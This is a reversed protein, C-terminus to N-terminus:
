QNFKKSIKEKVKEKAKEKEKEQESVHKMISEIKESQIQLLKDQLKVKKLLNQHNESNKGEIGEIMSQLARLKGEWGAEQDQKEFETCEQFFQLKNNNRRFFMMNEVEQIMDMLEKMDASLSDSQVRDYTDGIISILLNLMIIPNIMLAFTLCIYEVIDLNNVEFNGLVLNYSIMLYESFSKVTCDSETGECRNLVIFLFCFSLTSYILLVLFGQIDKCVQFLLNILYRTLKFLRFYSIGRLFSLFIVLSFVSYSADQWEGTWTIIIYTYLMIGRSWDIYNWVYTFYFSGSVSMQFLEYLLLLTNCFFLGFGAWLKASYYESMESLFATYISLILLYVYFCIGQVMMPYKANEWKYAVMAQILPSRMVNLNTCNALSELFEISGKSGMTYNIRAYSEKFLIGKGHTSIDEPIFFDEPRIRPHCSITVIPLEIDPTCFKPLSRRMAPQYIAEYISGLKPFAKKNMEIIVNELIQFLFPNNTGIAILADVIDDRIGKLGKLLAIYLPHYGNKSPIIPATEVLSANLNDRLGLFTYFHLTNFFYPLVVFKDMTIDHPVLNGTLVNKMYTLFKQVNDEPGLIRAKSSTIPNDQIYIMQHEGTIIDQCDETITLCLIPQKRTMFSIPIRYMLSIVHISRDKSVSLITQCDDTVYIGTVMETHLNFISEEVNEALSWVIVTGNIGGSIVYRGDNTIYLSTAQEQVQLVLPEQILLIDWIRITKDSSGSVLINESLQSPCYGICWISQQHGRLQKNEWTNLDWILVKSDGGGTVLEGTCIFCMDRIPGKHAQFDKIKTYDKSFIYLNGYDDGVALKEGDLSMCCKLGIGTTSGIIGAEDSHRNWFRIQHDSGCSVIDGNAEIVSNFDNNLVKFNCEEMFEPFSWVKLSKDESCSVINENYSTILLDKIPAMHSNLSIERRDKMLDWVRMSNDTSGSVLFNTEETFKLTNIIGTHETFVHMPTFDLINWVIVLNDAGGSALLTSDFNVALSCICGIHSKLNLVEECLNMDYVRILCDEGGSFVYKGCGSLALSKSMGTHKMLCGKSSRENLDWMRLTTDDSVTFALQKQYNIECKNVALLHGTLEFELEFRPLKYVRVIPTEGVVIAREHEEDLRVSNIQGINLPIDDIIKAEKLDYRSLNGNSSGFLVIDCDSSIELCVISFPTAITTESNKLIYASAESQLANLDQQEPSLEVKVRSKRADRKVAQGMIFSNFFSATNLTDARISRRVLPRKLDDM